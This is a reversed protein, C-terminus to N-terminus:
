NECSTIEEASSNVKGGVFAGLLNQAITATVGWRRSNGDHRATSETADDAPGTYSLKHAKIQAGQALVDSLCVRNINRLGNVLLRKQGTTALVNRKGLDFEELKCRIATLRVVM